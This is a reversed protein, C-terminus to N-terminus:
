RLEAVAAPRIVEAAQSAEASQSASGLAAAPRWQITLWSEDDSWASSFTGSEIERQITQMAKTEGAALQQLRAAVNGDSSAEMAKTFLSSHLQIIMPADRDVEPPSPLDRPPDNTAVTVRLEGHTTSFGLKSDRIVSADGGVELFARLMQNLKAVNEQAATEFALNIRNREQQRAIQDATPKNAQVRRNAIRLVMRRMFQASTSVSSNIFRNLTSLERPKVSVGTESIEIGVSKEFDTLSDSHIQTISATGVTQSSVQGRVPLEMVAKNPNPILVLKASAQTHSWGHIPVGLVTTAVPRTQKVDEVFRNLFEGTLTISAVLHKPTSANLVARPSNAEADADTQDASTSSNLLASTADIYARDPGSLRAMPVTTVRQNHKLLVIESAGIGVLKGKVSHYGSDDQWIRWTEGTINRTVSEASDAALAGIPQLASSSVLVFLLACVNNRPAPALM